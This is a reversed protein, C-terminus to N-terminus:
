IGTEIFKKLVSVKKPNLCYNRTIKPDGYYSSYQYTEVIKKYKNLKYEKGVKFITPKIESSVKNTSIKELRNNYYNNTNKEYIIYEYLRCNEFIKAMSHGNHIINRIDCNDGIYWKDEVRLANIEIIDKKLFNVIEKINNYKKEYYEKQSKLKKTYSLINKEVYFLDKEYQKKESELYEKFDRM